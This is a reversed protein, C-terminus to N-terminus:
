PMSPGRGKGAPHLSFFSRALGALHILGKDTVRTRNLALEKLSSLDALHVLKEDNVNTSSFNLKELQPFTQLHILASEVDPTGYFDVYIVEGNRIAVKANL